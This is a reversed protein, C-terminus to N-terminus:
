HTFGSLAERFREGAREGTPHLVKYFLGASLITPAWEGIFLATHRRGTLYLTASLLVSALMAFYYYSSPIRAMFDFFNEVPTERQMPVNM